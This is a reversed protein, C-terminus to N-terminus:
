RRDSRRRGPVELRAEIPADDLLEGAEAEDIALLVQHDGALGAGALAVDEAGDGEAGAEVAAHDAVGTEDRMAEGSMGQLPPDHLM